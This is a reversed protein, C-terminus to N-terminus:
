PNLLNEWYQSITGFELSLLDDVLDVKIDDSVSM